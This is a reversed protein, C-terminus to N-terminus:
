EYTLLNMERMTAFVCRERPACGSRGELDKERRLLRAMPVKCEVALLDCRLCSNGRGLVCKTKRKRCLACAQNQHQRLKKTSLPDPIYNSVHDLDYSAQSTTSIQIDPQLSSGSQGWLPIGAITPCEQTADADQAPQLDHEDPNYWYPLITGNTLIRAASLISVHHAM